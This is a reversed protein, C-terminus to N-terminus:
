LLQVTREGSRVAISAYDCRGSRQQFVSVAILWVAVIESPTPGGIAAHYDSLVSRQENHWAGLEQRGSRVVMHTERERWWALPCHFSTGVPLSQSWIYTLDRGNDFEVAISLYDHTPALDEAFSSPLDLVRWRWDLRASDDLPVRVPHRLIGVDGHTRCRLCERGDFTESSFIMTQGVRWLPSWGIPLEPTANRRELERAFPGQPDAAAATALGTAERWVVVAVDLAGGMGGRGGRRQSLDFRGSEDLWEGPPKTVLWLAGSHAAVFTTSDGISKAIPGSDGVRYWLAVKATCGLGLRESIWLRGQAILTVSEGAAVEVGTNVWDGSARLQVSASTRHSGGPLAALATGLPPTADSVRHSRRRSVV